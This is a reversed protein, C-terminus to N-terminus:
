MMSKMDRSALHYKFDLKCGSAPQLGFFAACSSGGFQTNGGDHCLCVCLMAIRQPTTLSPAFEAIWEFQLQLNNGVYWSWCFKGAQM